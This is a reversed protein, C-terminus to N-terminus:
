LKVKLNYVLQAFKILLRITLTIKARGEEIPKDKEGKSAIAISIVIL